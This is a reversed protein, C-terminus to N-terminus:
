SECRLRLARGAKGETIDRRVQRADFWYPGRNTPSNPHLNGSCINTSTQVRNLRGLSFHGFVGFECAFGASQTEADIKAEM